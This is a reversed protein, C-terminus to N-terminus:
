AIPLGLKQLEGKVVAKGIDLMVGFGVGGAKSAAGKTRSWVTPDRMTEIFEYGTWTPREVQITTGTRGAILILGAEELLDLHLIRKAAQDESLKDSVEVMLMEAEVDSVVDFAAKGDEIQLLLERIFDMDRKM